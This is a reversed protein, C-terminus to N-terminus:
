IKWMMNYLMKMEETPKEIYEYFKSYHKVYELQLSEDCKHIYDYTSPNINRKEKNM